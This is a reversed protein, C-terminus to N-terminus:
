VDIIHMVYERVKMRFGEIGQNKNSIVKRATQAFDRQACTVHLYCFNAESVQLSVSIVFM